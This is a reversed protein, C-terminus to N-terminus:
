LISIEKSIKQVEDKNRLECVKEMIFKYRLKFLYEKADNLNMFDKYSWVGGICESRIGVSYKLGYNPLYEMGYKKHAERRLRRLIVVNM